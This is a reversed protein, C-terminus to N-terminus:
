KKREAQEPQHPLFSPLVKGFDGNAMAAGLSFSSPSLRLREERKLPLLPSDIKARFFWV